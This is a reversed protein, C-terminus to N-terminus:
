DSSAKEPLADFSVTTLPARGRLPTTGHWMYSPFLVLRGARPQVVGEAGAGPTAHRPEGFALWGAKLAEDETEPPASLYYTASIWGQPHIHNLCAGGSRLQTSWVSEIRAAGVNRATLPHGRAMGVGRLYEQLALRFSHVLAQLAANAERRLDRLTRSGNRLNQDLPHQAFRHREELAALAAANLEAMSTWGPPSELDYSQLLRGYDYLEHYLPDGLLRAATAEHAIWLQSDPNRTREARIFPAADRARGRCLLITVLVDLLRPDLSRGSAAEVAEYEAEKLRGQELLTEALAIRVEPAPGVRAIVERLLAEAAAQDGARKLVKGLLMQLNADGAGAMAATRLDRAFAPDGRMFRLTALRLQAEANLPQMGVAQEFCREAEEVRYLQLLAVGRTLALDFGRLGLTEAHALTRLAEEARDMRALVSGLEHHAAPEGPKLAIAERAAAEADAFRRQDRLAAALLSWAAANHPDAAVIERASTEAAVHDGADNLAHALGIKALRHAPNVSLAERYATIAENLRGQRRLLAGLNNRFEAQSPAAAISERMLREAELADGAEKRILALLHLAAPHRPAGLLGERCAAEAGALDGQRLLATARGLPSDPTSM